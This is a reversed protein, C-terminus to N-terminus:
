ARVWVKNRSGHRTRRSANVEGVRRILGAAALSGFVSPLVNPHHPTVGLPLLSRVTDADFQEGPHMREIVDRVHDAYGRHPALDAALNAEIGERREPNAITTM